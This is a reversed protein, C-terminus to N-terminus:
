HDVRVARPLYRRGEPTSYYIAAKRDCVVYSDGELAWIEKVAKSEVDRVGARDGDIRFFGPSHHEVRGHNLELAEAAQDEARFTKLGYGSAGFAKLGYRATRGPRARIANVYPLGAGARVCAEQLAAQPVYPGHQLAHAHYGTGAPNVELTWSWEGAPVGLRVLAQRCRKIRTRAQDLPDAAGRDAALSVRIMRAPASYTIALARRRANIPLCHACRNRRCRAPFVQGTTLSILWRPDAMVCTPDPITTVTQYTSALSTGVRATDYGDSHTVRDLTRTM